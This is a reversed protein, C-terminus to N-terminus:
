DGGTPCTVEILGSHAVPFLGDGLEKSVNGTIPDWTDGDYGATTPAKNLGPNYVQDYAADSGTGFLYDVVFEFRLDGSL